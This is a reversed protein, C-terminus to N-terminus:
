LGGPNAAPEDRGLRHAEIAQLLQNYFVDGNPIRHLYEPGDRGASEIELNAAGILRDGIPKHVITDQIRDLAISETIRSVIGRNVIIRKNTLTYSTARWALVQSAAVLVVVLLAILDVLAKISTLDQGAMHGPVVAMLVLVVVLVAIAGTLAPAIVSWHQRVTVIESEGDLYHTAM